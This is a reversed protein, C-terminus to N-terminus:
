KIHFRTQFQLILRQVVAPWPINERGSLDEAWLLHGRMGDPGSTYIRLTGLDYETGGIQIGEPATSILLFDLDAPSGHPALTMGLKKTILDKLQLRAVGDVNHTEIAATTARALAKQLAAGDCTYVHNKLTCGGADGGGVDSQAFASAGCVGM